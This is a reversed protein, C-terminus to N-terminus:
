RRTKPVEARAVIAGQGDLVFVDGPVLAQDVDFVVTTRPSTCGTLQHIGKPDALETSGPDARRDTLVADVAGALNECRMPVEVQWEGSGVKRVSASDAFVVVPPNGGPTAHRDPWLRDFEVSAATYARELDRDRTQWCPHMAYMSPKDPEDGFAHLLHHLAPVFDPHYGAKVMLMMGDLDAELELRRCFRALEESAKASDMWSDAASGPDGMVLAGGSDRLSKEFFYRRAWDRRIVHAMEHSLLAAWLGANNGAIRALGSEVLILGDPSSYANRLDDNVIRLQWSLNRNEPAQALLSEFVRQATAFRYDAPASEAVFQPRLRRGTDFDLRFKEPVLSPPSISQPTLLPVVGAILAM